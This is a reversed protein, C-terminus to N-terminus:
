ASVVRGGGLGQVYGISERLSGYAATMSSTSAKATVVVMQLPAKNSDEKAPVM